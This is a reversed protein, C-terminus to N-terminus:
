RVMNLAEQLMEDSTSVIRTGASYAQQTVILKTFEDAIDANSGELAQAVVQGGANLLPSGSESTEQFAGGDVKRLFSEANFNALTIDALELSQGNTFIGTLRGSDSISLDALEGSPFGNQDLQTVQANGSPDSFQSLGTQGHALDVDGVTIGDVALGSITVTPLAPNLNGAANFVYDQGVNTWRTAAGTATSDSLYFLNWTESGSTNDIKAWRLQVNVPAGSVDYITIAGGSISNQLFIDSEDARVVEDNGATPDNTFDAPDLLESDAVNPDYAETLPLKALNARYDIRNTVQAPLFDNKVQIIEPLNGLPNGTQPDIPIGKLMYGAGNLLFGSKDVEFDGRRTYLSAGNFVASGDVIGAPKEVIFYGEGNIAMHTSVSSPALDGQVSNTARSNAVVVGARARTPGDNNVIEQFSTETRKFATTQSNAINDSIHELALSQARLGSVATSLAGFIGM